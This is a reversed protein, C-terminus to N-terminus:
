KSLGAYVFRCQQCPHLACSFAKELITRRFLMETDSDNKCCFPLSSLSINICMGIASIDIM